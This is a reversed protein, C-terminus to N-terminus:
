LRQEVRADGARRRDHARLAGVQARQLRHQLYAVQSRVHAHDGVEVVRRDRVRDLAHEARDAHEVDGRQERRRDHFRAQTAARALDLQALRREHRRLHDRRAGRRQALQVAAKRRDAYDGVGVVVVLQDGAGPAVLRHRRAISHRQEARARLEVGGPETLALRAGPRGGFRSRARLKSL